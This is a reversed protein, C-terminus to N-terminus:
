CHESLAIFIVLGLFFVIRVVIGWAFYEWAWSTQIKPADRQTLKEDSLVGIKYRIDYNYPVYRLAEELGKIITDIYSNYEKMKSSYNKLDTSTRPEIDTIENKLMNLSASYGRCGMFIFEGAENKLAEKEGEKALSIAYRFAYLMEDIRQNHFSSIYGAVRAKGMWYTPNKSDIEILQTYFQSAQQYDGTKESSRALKLLDHLKRKSGDIDDKILAVSKCHECQFINGTLNAPKETIAGCGSCTLHSIVTAGIVTQTREINQTSTNRQGEQIEQAKSALFREKCKPCVIYRGQEPILTDSINGLHNCNPCTVIM